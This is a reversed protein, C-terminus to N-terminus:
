QSIKTAQTSKLFLSQGRLVAPRCRKELGEELTELTKFSMPESAIQGLGLLM